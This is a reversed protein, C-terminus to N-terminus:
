LTSFSSYHACTEEWTEILAERKSTRSTLQGNDPISAQADDDLALKTAAKAAVAEAVDAPVSTVVGDGNIEVEEGLPGYRYTVRMFRTNPDDFPPSILRRYFIRLRKQRADLTWEEGYQDTIDEWADRGTRVELTDGENPDLPLPDHNDLFVTVPEWSTAEHVDHVEWSQPEDVAGVRVPHFPHGTRNIWKETAAAARRKATEVLASDAADPDLDTGAAIVQEATAYRAGPDATSM